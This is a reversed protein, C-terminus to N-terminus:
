KSMIDELYANVFEFYIDLIYMMIMLKKVNYGKLDIIVVYM